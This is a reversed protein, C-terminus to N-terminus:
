AKWPRAFFAGPSSRIKTRASARSREGSGPRSSYWWRAVKSRTKLRAARLSRVIRWIWSGRRLSCHFRIAIKTAGDDTTATGIVTAGASALALAIARGIGRTAGTVLAVQGHLPTEAM